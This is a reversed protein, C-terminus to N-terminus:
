QLPHLPCLSLPCLPDMHQTPLKVDSVPILIKDRHKGIDIVLFATESRRLYTSLLLFYRALGLCTVDRAPVCRSIRSM